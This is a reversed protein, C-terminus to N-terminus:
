GRQCVRDCFDMARTGFMVINKEEDDEISGHGGHRSFRLDLALSSDRMVVGAVGNQVEFIASEPAIEMM